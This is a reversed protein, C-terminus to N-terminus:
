HKILFYYFISYNIQLVYWLMLVFGIKGDQTPLTQQYEAKLDIRKYDVEMSQVFSYKEEDSDDLLNKM